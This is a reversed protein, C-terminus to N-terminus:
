GALDRETWFGPAPLASEGGHAYIRLRERSAASLLDVVDFLV